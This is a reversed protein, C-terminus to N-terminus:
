EAESGSKSLTDLKRFGDGTIQSINKTTKGLKEAVQAASLGDIYRMELVKQQWSGLKTFDGNEMASVVLGRKGLAKSLSRLSEREIKSIMKPNRELTRGVETQTLQGPGFRLDCVEMQLDTLLSLLNAENAKAYINNPDTEIGSTYGAREYGEAVRERFDPERWLKRYTPNVTKVEPGPGEGQESM